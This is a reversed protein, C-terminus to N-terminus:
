CRRISVGTLSPPDPDRGARVPARAPRSVLWLVPRVVGGLLLFLLAMLALVLVALCMEAVSMGMAGYGDVPGSAVSTVETRATHGVHQVVSAVGSVAPMAGHEVAAAPPSGMVAQPITDMGAAGHSDLGHMGFLGALIM